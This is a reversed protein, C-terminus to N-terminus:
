KRVSKRKGVSVGLEKLEEVLKENEARVDELDSRVRQHNLASTRASLQEARQQM